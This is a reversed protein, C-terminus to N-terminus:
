RRFRKRLFSLVRGSYRGLGLRLSLFSSGIRVWDSGFLLRLALDKLSDRGLRISARPHDVTPDLAQLRRRADELRSWYEGYLANRLQHPMVGYDLQGSQWLRTWRLPRFRAFHFVVLPQGDVSLRGPAELRLSAADWNWPALNIGPHRIIRVAAGFRAPWADLYKQDAYREPEMEDKCWDLCRSRWDALVARGAEDNRFSEVGVNFRGHREYHIRCHDPFRHPSILVSAAEGLEHELLPGLEAFLLLDADLWTIAKLSPAQQLIWAPFCPTLTFYYEIRSRGARAAPLSPDDAELRSLPIVHLGPDKLRELLEATREDLALVWLESGPEHRRISEWLALGQILFGQDFYTCYHTM